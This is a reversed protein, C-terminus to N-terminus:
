KFTCLFLVPNDDPKLAAKKLFQQLAINKSAAEGGRILKSASFACILYDDKSGVTHISSTGIRLSSIDLTSYGRMEKKRKDYVFFGINTNFLFYHNNDTMESITHVYGKERCIEYFKNNDTISLMEPPLAHGKFDIVYKKYVQGEKIQYLTPEFSRVYNIEDSGCTLRGGSNYERNLDENRVSLADDVINMEKDFVDIEFTETIPKERSISTCYNFKSDVAIGDYFTSTSKIKKEELFKGTYDFWMVKQPGDCLLVLKKQKTDLCFDLIGSYETPGGGHRDIVCTLHGNLDFVVLKNLSNDLIFLLSDDMFVKTIKRIFSSADTTELFIPRSKSFCVTDSLLSKVKDESLAITMSRNEVNDNSGMRQNACSFFGCFLVNVIVALVVSCFRMKIM